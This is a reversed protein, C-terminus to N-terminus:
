IQSNGSGRERGKYERRLDMEEVPKQYVTATVSPRRPIAEFRFSSEFDFVYLQPFKYLFLILLFFFTHRVSM